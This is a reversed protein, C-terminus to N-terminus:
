DLQDKLADLDTDELTSHREETVGILNQEQETM